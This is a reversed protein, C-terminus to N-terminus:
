KKKGAKKGGGKKADKAAKKKKKAEKKLRKKEEIAIREAEQREQELRELEALRAAEAIADEEEIRKEQALRAAEAAELQARRKAAEEAELAKKAIEGTEAIAKLILLLNVCDVSSSSCALHLPTNGYEGKLDKDAGLKLLHAAVDAFGKLCAWHLASDGALNQIKVDPNKELIMTVFERNGTKLAAILGTDGTTPDQQDVNEGRAIALLMEKKSNLGVCEYYTLGIIKEAFVDEEDEMASPCVLSESYSCTHSVLESLFLRRRFDAAAAAASRRCVPAELGGSYASISHDM